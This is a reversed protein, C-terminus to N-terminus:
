LVQRIGNPTDPGGIVLKSLTTPYLAVVTLLRADAFTGLVRLGGEFVDFRQRRADRNHELIPPGVVGAELPMPSASLWDQAHLEYSAPIQHNKFLQKRWTLWGKLSSSWRNEPIGLASFLTRREDGSDDVYFLYM